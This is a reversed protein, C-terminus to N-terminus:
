SQSTWRYLSLHIHVCACMNKKGNGRSLFAIWKVIQKCPITPYQSGMVIEPNMSVWPAIWELCIGLHSDLMLSLWIRKDQGNYLNRGSFMHPTNLLCFLCFGVLIKKYYNCGIWIIKNVENNAM